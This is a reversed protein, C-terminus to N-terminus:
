GTISGAQSPCAKLMALEFDLLVLRTIFIAVYASVKICCATRHIHLLDFIQLDQNIAALSCYITNYACM